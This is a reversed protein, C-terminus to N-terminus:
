PLVEETRTAPAGPSAQHEECALCHVAWPVAQLRRSAILCGCEQCKGYTGSALRDLATDVLKLEKYDLNVLRETVFEDQCAAAMDQERERATLEELATRLESLLEFKKASLLRRYTRANQLPTMEIKM